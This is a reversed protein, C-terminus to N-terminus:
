KPRFPVATFQDNYRKFEPHYQFEDMLVQLGKMHEAKAIDYRDSMKETMKAYKREFPGIDTDFHSAWDRAKDLRSMVDNRKINLKKLEDEFDKKGKEDARIELVYLGSM